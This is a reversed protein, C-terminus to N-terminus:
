FIKARPDQTQPPMDLQVMHEDIEMRTTQEGKQTSRLFSIPVMNQRKKRKQTGLKNNTQEM